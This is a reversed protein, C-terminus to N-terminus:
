RRKRISRIQDSFSLPKKGPKEPTVDSSNQTPTPGTALTNPLERKPKVAEAYRSFQAKLKTAIFDYSAPRGKSAILARVDAQNAAVFAEVEQRYEALNAHRATFENWIQDSQSKLIERQQVEALAQEKIGQGYKKLFEQPNTYLEEANITPEPQAQPTVSPQAQPQRALMDRVGQQYADAERQLSDAYNLAEAQTSFERDGIRFKPAEAPSQTEPAAEVVEEQPQAEAEPATEMTEVTQGEEDFVNEKIPTATTATQQQM